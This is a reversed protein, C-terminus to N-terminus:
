ISTFKWLKYVVTLYDYVVWVASWACYIFLLSYVVYIFIVNPFSIAKRSANTLFVIGFFLVNVAYVFCYLISKNQIFGQLTLSFLCKRVKSVSKRCNRLCFTFLKFIHHKNYTKYKTDYWNQNYVAM